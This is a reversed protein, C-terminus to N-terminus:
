SAGAQPHHLSVYVDVEVTFLARDGDGMRCLIIDYEGTDPAEDCGIFEYRDEGARIRPDRSYIEDFIWTGIATALDTEESM